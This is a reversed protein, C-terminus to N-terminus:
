ILNDPHRKKIIKKADTLLLLYGISVFYQYSEKSYLHLTQGVAAPCSNLYNSMCCCTSESAAQHYHVPVCPYSTQQSDKVGEQLGACATLSPVQLYQGEAMERYAALSFVETSGEEKEMWPKEGERPLINVVAKDIRTKSM